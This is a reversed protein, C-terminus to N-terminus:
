KKTKPIWDNQNFKRSCSLQFGGFAFTIKMRNMRRRRFKDWEENQTCSVIGRSRQDHLARKIKVGFTNSNNKVDLTMLWLLILHIHNQAQSIM